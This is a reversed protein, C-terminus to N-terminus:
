PTYTFESTRRAPSASTTSACTHAAFGRPARVSQRRSPASFLNLEFTASWSVIIQKIREVVIIITLYLLYYTVLGIVHKCVIFRNSNSGMVGSVASEKNDPRDAERLVIICHVIVECMCLVYMLCFGCGKPCARDKSRADSMPSRKKPLGQNINRGYICAVRGQQPEVMAM